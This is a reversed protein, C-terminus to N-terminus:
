GPQLSDCDIGGTLMGAKGKWKSGDAMSKWRAEDMDCSDEGEPGRLQLTNASKRAGERECGVLTTPCTKVKPDPWAPSTGQSAAKETRVEVWKTVDYGCWEDMKPEERFKPSCEKVEDFTGDGKDVRRTHCEEGDPIKTSGHEKDVCSVGTAGSPLESKWASERTEKYQEVAISRSWSHGTVEVAVDKKWFTNVCLFVFFLGVLGACGIGCLGMGKKAMGGSPAAAAPEPAKKPGGKLEREAKLADDAEFGQGQGAVQDQRLKAAAAEDLPSGCRSCFEAKAGNPAECAPCVKDAGEYPHDGVAVKDEEAPYYRRSPDQPAGCSPCHRHTLGLLKPTECRPCDWLMEFRGEVESRM